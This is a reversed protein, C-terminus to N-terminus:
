GFVAVATLGTVTAGAFNWNGIPRATDDGGSYELFTVGYFKFDIYDVGNYIQFVESGNYNLTMDAFDGDITLYGENPNGAAGQKYIRDAQLRNASITGARIYDANLFLKGVSDVPDVQYVFGRVGSNYLLENYTNNADVPPKSGTVQSYSPPTVDGWLINGGDIEINNAVVKGTDYVRFAATDKNANGAWIRVNEVPDSDVTSLGVDGDMSTIQDSTVKFGGVEFLNDSGLNSLLNEITKHLMAIHDILDKTTANDDPMPPLKVTAM